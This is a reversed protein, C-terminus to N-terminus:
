GAQSHHWIIKRKVQMIGSPVGEGLLRTAVRKAKALSPYADFLRTGRKSILRVEYTTETPSRM